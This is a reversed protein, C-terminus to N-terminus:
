KNNDFLFSFSFITASLFNHEYQCPLPNNPATDSTHHPYSEVGMIHTFGDTCDAQKCLYWNENTITLSSPLPSTLLTAPLYNHGYQCPLPKDPDTNLTATWVGEGGGGWGRHPYLQRSLTAAFRSRLWMPLNVRM